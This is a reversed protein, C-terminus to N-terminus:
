RCAPNEGLARAGHACAERYAAAAEPTGKAANWGDEFAKKTAEVATNAAPSHAACNDIAMLYELCGPPMAGLDEKPEVTPEFTPEPLPEPRVPDDVGDSPDELEGGPEDSADSPAVPPCGTTMLTAWAVFCGLWRTTM